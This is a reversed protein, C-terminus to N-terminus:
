NGDILWKKLKEGFNEDHKELMIFKSIFGDNRYWVRFKAKGEFSVAKFIDQNNHQEVLELHFGKESLITKWHAYVKSRFDTPIPLPSESESVKASQFLEEICDNIKTEDEGESKEIRISSVVWNDKVGKNNFAIILHKNVTKPISFNVKTLYENSPNVSELLYGLSEFLTALECVSGKVNDNLSDPIITIFRDPVKYDSFSISSKKASSSVTSIVTTDEFHTEM